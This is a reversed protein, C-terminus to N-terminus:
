PVENAQICKGTSLSISTVKMNHAYKKKNM